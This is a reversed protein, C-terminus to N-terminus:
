LRKQLSFHQITFFTNSFHFLDYLNDTNEIPDIGFLTVQTPELITQLPWQKCTEIRHKLFLQKNPYIQLQSKWTICMFCDVIVRRTM